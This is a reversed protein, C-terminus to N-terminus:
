RSKTSDHFDKKNLFYFGNSSGFLIKELQNSPVPEYYNTRDGNTSGNLTGGAETILKFHEEDAVNESGNFLMHEFFHAFGSNGIEERASGVHFTIDVHVMPDSNDEHLIVTLGNDMEYKKYPITLDESSEKRVTEVLTLSAPLVSATKEAASDPAQQCGTLTLVLGIGALTLRASHM